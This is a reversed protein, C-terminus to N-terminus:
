CWYWWRCGGLRGFHRGVAGVVPGAGLLVNSSMVNRGGVDGYYGLAMALGGCLGTGLLLLDAVGGEKSGDLLGVDLGPALLGDVEVEGDEDGEATGAGITVITREHGTDDSHLLELVLEVSAVSARFDRNDEREISHLDHNGRNM